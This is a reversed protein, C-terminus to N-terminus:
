SPRHQSPCPGQAYVLRWPGLCTAVRHARLRGSSDEVLVGLKAGSPRSRGAFVSAPVATSRLKSARLREGACSATLGPGSAADRRRVARGLLPRVFPSGGYKTAYARTVEALTSADTVVEARVLHRHEGDRVEGDPNSRLRRYWGGKSGRVSRVYIQDGVQVAWIPVSRTSGDPRRVGIRIQEVDALHHLGNATM